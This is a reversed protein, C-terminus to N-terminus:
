DTQPDEARERKLEVAVKKDGKMEYMVLVKDGASVQTFQGGSVSIRTGDDLIISRDQPDVAQVTGTTQDAAAATLALGLTLALAFGMAKKM